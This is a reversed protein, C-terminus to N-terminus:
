GQNAKQHRENKAKAETKLKSLWVLQHTGLLFRVAWGHELKAYWQIKVGFGFQWSEVSLSIERRFQTCIHKQKVWALDIM